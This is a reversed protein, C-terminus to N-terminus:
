SPIIGNRRGKNSDDSYIPLTKTDMTKVNGMNEGRSIMELNITEYCGYHKSSGHEPADMINVCAM